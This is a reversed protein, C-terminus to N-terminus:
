ELDDQYTSAIKTSARPDENSNFYRRGKFRRVEKAIGPMLFLSVVITGKFQYSTTAKRHNVYRWNTHDNNHSSLVEQIPDKSSSDSTSSFFPSPKYETNRLKKFASHHESISTPLKKSSLRNTLRSAYFSM